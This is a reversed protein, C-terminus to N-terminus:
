QSGSVLSSALPPVLDPSRVLMHAPIHVAIRDPPRRLTSGPIHVRSHDPGLTHDPIHVQSHDLRYVPIAARLSCAALPEALLRFSYGRHEFGARTWCPQDICAPRQDAPM